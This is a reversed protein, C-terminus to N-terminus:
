AKFMTRLPMSGCCEESTYPPAWESAEDDFPILGLAVVETTDNNPAFSFFVWGVPVRKWDLDPLQPASGVVSLIAMARGRFFRAFGWKGQAIAIAFVAGAPARFFSHNKVPM